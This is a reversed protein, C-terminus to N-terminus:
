RVRQARTDTTRPRDGLFVTSTDSTILRHTGREPAPHGGLVCLVHEKM